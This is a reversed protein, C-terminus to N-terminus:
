DHFTRTPRKRIMRELKAGQFHFTTLDLGKESKTREEEDEDDDVVLSAQDWTNSIARRDAASKEGEFHRILQRTTMTLKSRERRRNHISYGIYGIHMTTFIGLFIWFALHDMTRMDLHDMTRMDEDSMWEMSTLWTDRGSDIAGALCSWITILFLFIFSSYIYYDLITWYPILPLHDFM